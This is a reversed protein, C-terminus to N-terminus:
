PAIPWIEMNSNKIIFVPMSSSVIGAMPGVANHEHCPAFEIQGSAALREAQEPSEARKEYLLAGIVAGRMPGCMRQWDIPPGAHLLLDPKMGPIVDLARGMGILHPTGAQIIEVAKANAKEIEQLMSRVRKMLAADVKVPPRWDLQVAPAHADDLAEKFASLGINIVKLEGSFLKHM